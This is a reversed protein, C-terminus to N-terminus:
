EGWYLFQWKIGPKVLLSIPVTKYLFMQPTFPSFSLSFTPPNGWNVCRCIWWFLYYFTFYYLLSFFNCLVSNVYIYFFSLLFWLISFCFLIDSIRFYFFTVKLFTFIFFPSCSFPLGRNESIGFDSPKSFAFFQSKCLTM